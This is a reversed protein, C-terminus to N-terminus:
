SSKRAILVKRDHSLRFSKYGKRVNVLFGVAALMEAIEAAPLITQRHVEDQRRYRKGDKRFSLIKRTLRQQRPDEAVEVFVAWDDGWRAASRIKKGMGPLPQKIDFVLIGGPRLSRFVNRFARRISPRTPLYNFVEGIAVAASCPPLVIEAVSGRIFKAKPVRRRALRVMAPSVDVGVPQYGERLLRLSLQGGGCGLDLVVGSRVGQARLAAIAGPAAKEVFDSFYLNHLEALDQHYFKKAM